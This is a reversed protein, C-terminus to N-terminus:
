MARTQASIKHVMVKFNQRFSNQWILLMKKEFPGLIEFRPNNKVKLTM